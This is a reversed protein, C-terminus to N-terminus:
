FNFKEKCVHTNTTIVTQGKNLIKTEQIQSCESHDNSKKIFFITM